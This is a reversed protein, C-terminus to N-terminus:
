TELAALWVRFTTGKGSIGESEVEMRGQHSEIITKAIYLGLGAGPVGAQLVIRGRFFREFVRSIEDASIGPGNDTITLCIWQKNEVQEVDTSLRIQGEEPTYNLANDLLIKLVRELMALDGQVAPLDDKENFTLTQRREAAIAKHAALSRAVLSNLNVPTPNLQKLTSTMKSAYLMEEVIAELHSTERRLTETYTAGNEPKISLLHHYLKLNTIPTRLEHSVSAVFEDKLQTLVQLREYAMRLDEVMQQHETIDEFIALLGIIQGDSQRIPTLHYRLYAEKGWSTKLFREAVVTSGEALCRQFDASIGAEALLISTLLNTNQITEPSPPTLMKLTTPNFSLINGETDTSLIGLPANDVLRRYREESEQLAAMTQKRETIDRVISQVHLPTGDRDRVLLLNVEAPFRTGDKKCFTRDYIPPTQGSLVTELRGIANPYEEPVVTQTIPMGIMEDPDYGLMEAARRNVSLHIGDLSLIFIADNAGEFLAQYRHQSEWLAETREEALEELHDRHQVLEEEIQRRIHMEWLLRLDTEVISQFQQMLDRYLKSYPNAKNDLICITGFMDEDPWRIPYGLYSIMNLKIDPNHDWNPDKLADPVLLEARQEMVTECYLGINLHERDGRKYPNDPTASTVFVEIESTHVRMILGAPVQIINAMLDVIHQWKALIDETIEPRQTLSSSGPTGKKSRKRKPSM